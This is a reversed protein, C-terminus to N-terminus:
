IDSSPRNSSDGPPMYDFILTVRDTKGKNMVSHRKQNNLEYAQGVEFQYPRGDIMFRVRANTTLPVHIRHAVHFSEHKDVHPKILGGPPLKALMSRLIKGGPPYHQELVSEMLPVVIDSLKEWGDERTITVTPWDDSDLFLLVVSETQHHVYYENQRKQHALWDEDDLSDLRAVLSDVDIPGLHRLTEAIDM